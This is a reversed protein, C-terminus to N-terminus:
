SFHNCGASDAPDKRIPINSSDPVFKIEGKKIGHMPGPTTDAPEFKMKGVFQRTTDSVATTTDACTITEGTTFGGVIVDSSIVPAGMLLTDMAPESIITEQRSINFLGVHGSYRYNEKAAVGPRAAQVAAGAVHVPDSHKVECSFLTTGFAILCAVLFQKWLPMKLIFIDPPLEIQITQLQRSTFRGCSHEQKNNLLFHQVETDSMLTFDVVTKMCSNCHRGQENPSMQNWDEHCPTPISIKLM